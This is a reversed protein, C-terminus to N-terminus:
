RRLYQPTLAFPAAHVGRLRALTSTSQQRYAVQYVEGNAPLAGFLLDGRGSFVEAAYASSLGALTVAVFTRSVRFRM